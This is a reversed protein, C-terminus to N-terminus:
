FSHASFDKIEAKSKLVPRIIGEERNYDCEAIRMQEYDNIKQSEIKM